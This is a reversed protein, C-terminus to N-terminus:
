GKKKLYPVVHKALQTVNPLQIISLHDGRVEYIDLDKKLFRNWGYDSLFSIGKGWPTHDKAKILVVQGDYLDNYSEYQEMCKIFAQERFDSLNNTNQAVSVRFLNSFFLYWQNLNNKIFRKGKSQLNRQIGVPLITDLLFVSLVERNDAKLLKATEIALLGGFSIGALQYPGDPQQRCIAEYYSLALQQLSLEARRGMMLEELFAQEEAVYIGYVPQSDGLSNAFAQYINIGCLCFLPVGGGMPQLPVISSATKEVNDKQAEVLQKITPFSFIDGIDFKIGTAREMEHVLPVTMLSDGGSDFFNDIIGIQSSKLVAAWVSVLSREFDNRPEVYEINNSLVSSLDPDPLAKRDVKGNPTLPLGDLLIFKSPIMYDPLKTKLYERLESANINSGFEALLYAILTHEGNEDPWTTVVCQKVTDHEALITEVEGTEIRFGRVKVQFDIRGIYELNMDLKYRVLDGTKYMKANEIGSFPNPIFQEETLKMNRYYGNAIGDGAIYLEGSVGIPVPKLCENLVYMQTGIIPKGISISKEEKTVRHVSSWITTETPGYMNWLSSCLPLLQQALEYSLAEGGCLIKLKSDGEWGSSILLRYTAPTAQLVSINQKLLLLLAQGNITAEYPAIRVTAGLILPLFLELAAIDFSITTVSLIIDNSNMGPQESMAQLFTSLGHHRVEVGKPRGTSGSTFIIYALNEGKVIPYEFSEKVTSLSDDDLCILQKCSDVAVKDRLKTETIVVLPEADELIISIRDSPQKPDIPVYAGGAQMVALLCTVMKPSREVCVGVLIGPKVGLQCLQQALDDVQAALTAYSIDQKNFQVAIKDPTTNVQQKFLDVVSLVQRKNVYNNYKKPFLLSKEDSTLLDIETIKKTRDTLFHKLLLAFHNVARERLVGSNWVGLNFDFSLRCQRRDSLRQVQISLSERGSWNTGAIDSQLNDLLNLPTTLEYDVELGSFTTPASTLINLIVEYGAKKASVFHDRHAQVAVIEKRVKEVLSEFTDDKEVLVRNACVEMLLGLTDTYAGGTRNLLQVGISLDQNLSVRNLFAFLISSFVVSISITSSLENLQVVTEKDLEYIVRTTRATKNYTPRNYFQIPEVAQNFYSEWFRGTNNFSDEDMQQRKTILLDFFNDKENNVLGENSKAAIESYYDSLSKHVKECSSADTILHHQNLYFGYLQESFKVLRAKYLHEAYIFVGSCWDQFDSTKEYEVVSSGVVDILEINNSKEVLKFVSRGSNKDFDIVTSFITHQSCLHNFAKTFVDSDIAGKIILRTLVNNVPLGSHIADDVLLAEQRNSLPYVKLPIIKNL